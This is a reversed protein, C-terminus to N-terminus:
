LHKTQSQKLSRLLRRGESVDLGLAEFHKITDCHWRIIQAILFEEVRVLYNRWM